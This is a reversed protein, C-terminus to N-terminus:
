LTCEEVEEAANRGQSKLPPTHGSLQLLFYM